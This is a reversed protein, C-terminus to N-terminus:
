FCILIFTEDIDIGVEWRILYLLLPIHFIITFLLEVSNRHALTVDIGSEDTRRVFQSRQLETARCIFM